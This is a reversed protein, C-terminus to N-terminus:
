YPSFIIMYLLYSAYKSFSKQVPRLGLLMNDKQIINQIESYIRIWTTVSFQMEERKNERCQPEEKTSVVTAHKLHVRTNQQFWFLISLNDQAM